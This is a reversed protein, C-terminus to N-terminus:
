KARNRIEPWFATQDDDNGALLFADGYPVVWPRQAPVLAVSDCVMTWLACMDEVIFRLTSILDGRFEANSLDHGLDVCMQWREEGVKSYRLHAVVPRHEMIDRIGKRTKGAEDESDRLRDFWACHRAFAARLTDANCMPDLRQLSSQHAIDERLIKYRHPAIAHRRFLVYRVSRAFRDALRRAYVYALDIYLPLLSAARMNSNFSEDDSQHFAPMAALRVCKGLEGLTLAFRMVTASFAGMEFIQDQTLPIIEGSATRIGGRASILRLVPLWLLKVGQSNRAWGHEPVREALAPDGFDIALQMKTSAWPDLVWPALNARPSIM